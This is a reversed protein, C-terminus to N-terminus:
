LQEGAFALEGIVVIASERTQCELHRRLHCFSVLLDPNGNKPITLKVCMHWSEDSGDNMRLTVKLKGPDAYAESVSGKIDTPAKVDPLGMPASSAPPTTQDDAPARHLQHRGPLGVGAGIEFAGSKALAKCAALDTEIIWCASAQLGM